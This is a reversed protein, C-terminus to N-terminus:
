WIHLFSDSLEAIEKTTGVSEFNFTEANGEFKRMAEILRNVPKSFIRTFFFGMVVATLLVLYILVYSTRKMKEVKSTIMEDIYCVGVIIWGYDKLTRTNYIIDEKVVSGDMSKALERMDDERMEKLGSFILQQQPHYIINGEQEMLFCYGHQGIGVDDIYSAISDFSINM